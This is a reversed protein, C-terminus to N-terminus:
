ACPQRTLIRSRRGGAYAPSTACYTFPDIRSSPSTRSASSSFLERAAAGPHDGKLSKGTAGPGQKEILIGFSAAQRDRALRWVRGV